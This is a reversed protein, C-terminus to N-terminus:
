LVPLRSLVDAHNVSGAIPVVTFSYDQLALAWRMLRGNSSKSLKLYTLPRHDTELCFHRGFLYRAFKDISWVVGLCEREITSYRTERDLLKRSAYMVPHVVGEDDEQLLVGGLGIDSADTRVTFSKQFDPLLLVPDSSLIRQVSEFASQCQPTWKVKSSQNKKTLEVLPAVVSAFQPIYRRYFGVLGLLSRVQKKTTPVAVQLIKSVKGQVPMIQGEQIRHGLFEISQFGLEVKSPRVTLGHMALESLLGDLGILHERWTRTAVLIDDFFSQAFFRDLFLLRMMRAFTSPATSLGFPMRTFQYLGSPARFATKPRDAEALPIQWYGKALDIKSFFRADKLSAFLSEQDPIPEADFLTHKNIERFDICFRWSGDKKKVLVFPSAFPSSSPEIIGLELMKSVEDEVVKESDFPIPYQKKNVVVDRSMRVQHEILDADGPLDTFMDKHKQVVETLEQLLAPQLETNYVVDEVSETQATPVPVVQVKSVDAEGDDEPQCMIGLTAPVVGTPRPVYERLLNIHYMKQVGPGTEIMYDFPRVKAVVPFPGKWRMLMKGHEDPLLVLVQQGPRLVRSQAHKGQRKRAVRAAAQVADQAQRVMESMTSELDSVYRPMDKVEQDVPTGTWVQYLLQSPGKAQRGFMLQFPSFGTAAQPVERYAFLAYPLYRDWDRPKEFMLKKLMAKLTGNFREVLGNTQPHFPSSHLQSVSMLRLLSRMVDSTFQTGQDSLIEDPLGFRSCISLLAEAVEEATIGKLPVAEPYRTAVDVCTLVYRHGRASPPSLPGILDIAIRSFQKDVVPMLQLPAPPVRGKPFTKQCPECSRCYAKVDSRMRPWVFFPSLRNFTSHQGMHGGLVGDHASILVSERLPLPVVLQWSVGGKAVDTLARYLLGDRIVFSVQVKDSGVPSSGVKAFWGQLSSDAKQM